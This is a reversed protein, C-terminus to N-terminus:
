FTKQTLLGILALESDTTGVTFCPSPDTVTHPHKPQPLASTWMLPRM